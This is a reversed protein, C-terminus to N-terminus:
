LMDIGRQLQLLEAHLEYNLTTVSLTSRKETAKILKEKVILSMRGKKFITELSKHDSEKTQEQHAYMRM